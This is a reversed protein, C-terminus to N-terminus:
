AHASQLAAEYESRMTDGGQARWDKVLQDFASLDDRGFIINNLGDGMKQNLTAALKASTASYLGVVPNQIGMGQIVSADQYMVRAYDPSNADYLVSAPSGINPWPIFLDSNTIAQNSQTVTAIPNGNPDFTFQKGELGYWILLGASIAALLVWQPAAVLPEFTLTRTM